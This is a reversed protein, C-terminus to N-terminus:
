GRAERVMQALRDLGTRVNDIDPGFSFRMWQRWPSSTRLKSPNVDFFVGPVTMVRRELAARFFAEGDNLPAPLASINAWCYFTGECERAFTMGLERLRTVM